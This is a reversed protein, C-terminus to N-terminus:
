REIEQAREPQRSQALAPPAPAATKAKLLEAKFENFSRGRIGAQHAKRLLGEDIHQEVLRQIKAEIKANLEPTRSAIPYKAAARQRLKQEYHEYESLPRRAQQQQALAQRYEAVERDVNAYLRTREEASVSPFKEVVVQRLYKEYEQVQLEERSIGRAEAERVKRENDQERVFSRCEDLSGEYVKGKDWDHVTCLGRAIWSIQLPHETGNSDNHM